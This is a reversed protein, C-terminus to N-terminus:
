PPSHPQYSVSDTIRPADFWGGAVKCLTEHASYQASSTAAAEPATVAKRALKKAAARKAAAKM